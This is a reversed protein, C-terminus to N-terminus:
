SCPTGAFVREVRTTALACDAESGPLRRAAVDRLTKM